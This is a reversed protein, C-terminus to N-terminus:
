WEEFMGLLAGLAVIVRLRRMTIVGREAAVGGHGLLHM